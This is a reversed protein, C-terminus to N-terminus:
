PPDHQRLESRLQVQPPGQLAPHERRSLSDIDMIWALHNDLTAFPFEGHTHWMGIFHVPAQSLKEEQDPPYTATCQIAAAAVMRGSVQLEDWEPATDALLKATYAGTCVVTHEALMDRPEGEKMITIGQCSGDPALLLKQVTAEIFGVGADLAAQFVVAMAEDAEAWGSHPNYYNYQVDAWNADQFISFRDRGEDVSM